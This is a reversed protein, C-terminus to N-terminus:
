NENRNQNPASTKFRESVQVSNLISDFSLENTKDCSYYISFYNYYKDKRFIVNDTQKKYCVKEKNKLVLPFNSLTDHPFLTGGELLVVFQNNPYKFSVIIADEACETTKVYGLPMRMKVTRSLLNITESQYCDFDNQFGILNHHISSCGECFPLCAVAIVLFIFTKM